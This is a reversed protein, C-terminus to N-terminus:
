GVVFEEPIMNVDKRSLYYTVILICPFTTWTLLETVKLPFGIPDSSNVLRITSAKPIIISLPGLPLGRLLSFQFMSFIPRGKDCKTIKISLIKDHLNIM